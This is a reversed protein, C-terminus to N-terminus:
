VVEGAKKKKEHRHAIYAAILELSRPANDMHRHRWNNFGVTCQHSCFLRDQRQAM